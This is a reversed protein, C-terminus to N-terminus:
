IKLFYLEPKLKFDPQITLTQSLNKVQVPHFISLIRYLLEIPTTNM